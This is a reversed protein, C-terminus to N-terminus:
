SQRVPELSAALACEHAGTHGWAIISIIIPMMSAGLDTLAYDVRLPDGSSERRRVLGRAALEKLERSLVRQTIAQGPCGEELSRRISGYRQPSDRLTWLTRLKYKGGRLSTLLWSLAFGNPLSQEM